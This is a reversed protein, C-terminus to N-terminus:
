VELVDLSYKFMVSWSMSMVLKVRIDLYTEDVACTIM